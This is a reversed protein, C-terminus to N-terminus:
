QVQPTPRYAPALHQTFPQVQASYRRSVGEALGQIAQGELRDLAFTGEPVAPDVRVVNTPGILHEVSHLHGLAQARLLLSAVPRLWNLVGGNNLAASNRALPDTTGLSLVRISSLPADLMSVAEVVGVLSPNNAWLGGDVLRHHRLHFAPFYTPAATAALAVDVMTERGDRRLREHHPTKFTYVDNEDLSYAPIVLRLRSTALQRDGLCPETV